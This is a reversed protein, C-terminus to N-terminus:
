FEEPGEARCVERAAKFVEEQQRETLLKRGIAKAKTRSAKSTDWGLAKAVEAQTGFAGSLVAETYKRADDDAAAQVDWRMTGAESTTLMVDRPAITPHPAGRFKSWVTTFAASQAAGSATPPKLGLIVEFTTALKSSGRYSEGTKGSHHVLICAIRAQKLRLLFALVPNMAGAENEDAVEALTAFNDLLVLDARHEQALRLVTEQGEDSAIDPFKAGPQQDSRALVCLNEAAAEADMGAVTPALLRLRDQLDEVAMEGDVALVRWPRAAKWGLLEGGGAIALAASLLLMTKGVGPPAWLMM